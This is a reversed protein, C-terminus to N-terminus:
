LVYYKNWMWTHMGFSTSMHAQLLFDLELGYQFEPISIPVLVEEFLM